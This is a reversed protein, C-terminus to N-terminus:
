LDGVQSDRLIVIGDQGQSGPSASWDGRGVGRERDPRRRGPRGRAAVGTAWRAGRQARRETRGATAPARRTAVRDLEQPSGALAAGSTMGALCTGKPRSFAEAPRAAGAVGATDEWPLGVRAGTGM